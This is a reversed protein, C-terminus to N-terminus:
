VVKAPQAMQYIVATGVPLSFNNDVFLKHLRVRKWNDRRGYLAYLNMCGEVQFFVLLSDNRNSFTGNEFLTNFIQFAEGISPVVPICDSLIESYIEKVSMTKEIYLITGVYGPKNRVIIGGFYSAIDKDIQPPQQHNKRERLFLLRFAHILSQLTLIFEDSASIFLHINKQIMYFSNQNM